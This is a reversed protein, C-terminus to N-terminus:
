SSLEPDFGASGGAGEYAKQVCVCLTFSLLFCTGNIFPDVRLFFSRVSFHLHIFYFVLCPIRDDSRNIFKVQRVPEHNATNSCEGTNMECKFWM